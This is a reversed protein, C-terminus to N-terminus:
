GDRDGHTRMQSSLFRSLQSAHTHGARRGGLTTPAALLTDPLFHDRDRKLFAEYTDHEDVTDDGVGLLESGHHSFRFRLERLGCLGMAARISEVRSPASFLLLYGGGGAGAIKGGLAGARKAIRYWGDIEASSIKTSLSRKYTWAEDLLRGFENLDGGLLASRMQQALAKMHHLSETVASNAGIDAKQQALISSAARTKGTSFLLLRSEIERVVAPDVSLREVRVSGDFTLANLGGFASAYQDQKGIPMALDSIELRCAQEAIQRWDMSLGVYGALASVLAVAVASSSGLGTGPQVECALCLELGRELLHPYESAFSNIAAKPLALPQALPEQGDGRVDLTLGYDASRIRTVGDNRSQVAVFAYRDIAASIVFGGYREYYAPLDSGGGGFSIRLPARALSYPTSSDGGSTAGRVDLGPISQIVTM